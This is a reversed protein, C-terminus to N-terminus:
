LVYVDQWEAKLVLEGEGKIIKELDRCAFCGNGGRECSFIEVGEKAMRDRFDKIESAVKIVKNYSDDISPLNVEKPREDRELYWYSAGNIKRKQLNHLLLQYIPLQLSEEKEENVGTKFDIVHLSDDSERYQLWDIKGCLIINKEPSIYYNPPMGNKGPKLKVTKELLPDINEKVRRIMEKARNKAESEEDTDLFGGKKGSIKNWAKEFQEYMPVFKRENAPYNALGEVVEHVATGISLAPSAIGIKKGTKPDKYVNKLFYARKCKLFDGMSSHSVWVSSWKNNVLDKGM